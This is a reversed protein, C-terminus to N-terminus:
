AARTVLKWTPSAKSGANLYLDANTVDVCFAGKGAFGAGTGAGGDTPVGESEIWGAELPTRVIAKAIALPEGGGTYLGASRGADHLDVGYDFGSDANNSNMRAAFAANARTESSPDSGDIVAVVAGDAETVGDMVVAVVAGVQLETARAGTVSLAGIVGALYNKTKTLADGLLNGMIAALFSSNGADSVGADADLELDTAIPQFSGEGAYVPGGVGTAGSRDLVDQLTSAEGDPLEVTISDAQHANRWDTSM